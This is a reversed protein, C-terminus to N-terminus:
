WLAYWWGGAHSDVFCRLHPFNTPGNFEDVHRASTEASVLM